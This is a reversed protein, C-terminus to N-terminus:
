RYAILFLRRFPFLVRGDRRPPYIGRLAAIYDELFRDRCNDSPLVDLFPRLGSGAYWGGISEPNPMIHIYETEWLELRTARNALVDYYFGTDHVHWERVSSSEFYERWTASLALERMIRHAPADMDAPMQVALVGGARVRHLLRPYIDEHDELWQLAANSFVVDYDAGSDRAWEAIDGMMWEYQPFGQRARELMATSNDLGTIYAHPWREGLVATSTGPGCGLDIVSRVPDIGIRAVLDRCPWAREQEFRLYQEPAWTPM